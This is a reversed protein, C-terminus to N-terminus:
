NPLRPDYQTSVINRIELGVARSRANGVKQCLRAMAAKFDDDNKLQSARGSDGTLKYALEVRGTANELYVLV